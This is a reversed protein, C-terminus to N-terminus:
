KIEVFKEALENSVVNVIEKLISNNINEFDSSVGSSISDPIKDALKEPFTQYEYVLLIGILPIIVWALPIGAIGVLALLALIAKGVVTKILIGIGVKKVAILIASKLVGAALAKTVILSIQQLLIKGMGTVMFKGIIAIIKQGMASSLFEVISDTVTNIMEGAMSSASEGAILTKVEHRLWKQNTNIDKRVLNNILENKEIQSTIGEAIKNRIKEGTYFDVIAIETAKLAIPTVSSEIKYSKYKSESMFAILIKAYELNAEPKVERIYNTGNYLKFSLCQNPTLNNIESYTKSRINSLLESKENVILKAVEKYDIIRKFFESSQHNDM